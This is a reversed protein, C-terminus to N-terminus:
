FLYSLRSLIYLINALFYFMHIYKFMCFKTFINSGVENRMTDHNNQFYTLVNELSDCFITVAEWQIIM